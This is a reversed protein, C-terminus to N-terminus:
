FKRGVILTAVAVLLGIVGFLIGAIEGSKLGEKNGSSVASIAGPSDVAWCLPQNLSTSFSVPEPCAAFSTSISLVTASQGKDAFRMLIATSSTLSRSCQRTSSAFSHLTVQYKEIDIAVIQVGRPFGLRSNQYPILHIRM